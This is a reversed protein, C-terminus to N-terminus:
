NQSTLVRYRSLIGFDLALILTHMGMELSANRKSDRDCLGNARQYYVDSEQIREEASIDDKASLTASIALVINLLGLWTRSIKRFGERRMQLYTERFSAEHIFPLLQGTKQFYQEILDWARDEPPLAYVNIRAAISPEGATAVQGVPPARSRTVSVMGGRRQEPPSIVSFTENDSKAKAMARSIYRM